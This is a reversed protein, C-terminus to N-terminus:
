VTEKIVNLIADSSVEVVVVTDSLSPGAPTKVPLPTYRLEEEPCLRVKQTLDESDLEQLEKALKKLDKKTM